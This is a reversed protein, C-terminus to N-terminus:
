AVALRAVVMMPAPIMASGRAKAVSPTTSPADMSATMKTSEKKERPTSTLHGLSPPLTPSRLAAQLLM